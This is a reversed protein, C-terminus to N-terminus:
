WIHYEKSHNLLADIAEFMKDLDELDCKENPSHNGETSLLLAIVPAPNGMMPFARSDTGSYNYVETQIEVGFDYFLELLNERQKISLLVSNDSLTVVAGDGMKIGQEESTYTADLCIVFDPEIAKALVKAGFGCMEETGNAGLVLNFPLEADAFKKATELLMFCGIRNDLFPAVFEGSDSLIPNSAYCVRDGAKVGPVYDCFYLTEDDKEEKRLNVNYLNSDTKVVAKTKDGDFSAGGLKVLKLRRTSVKEVIFGPSDTHACILVTPKSEDYANVCTSVAYQGHTTVELNMGEFEKTLYDNLDTEDGPTSHIQVLDFLWKINLM